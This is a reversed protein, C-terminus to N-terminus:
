LTFAKRMSTRPKLSTLPDPSPPNGSPCTPSLSSTLANPVNSRRTPPLFATASKSSTNEWAINYSPENPLILTKDTRRQFSTPPLRSLSSRTFWLETPRFHYCDQPNHHIVATAKGTVLYTNSFFPTRHMGVLLTRLYPRAFSQEECTVPISCRLLQVREKVM